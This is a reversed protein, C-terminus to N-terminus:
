SDADSVAPPIVFCFVERYEALCPDDTVELQAHLGFLRQGWMVVEPLLQFPPITVEVVHAGTRTALRVTIM